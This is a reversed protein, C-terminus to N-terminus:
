RRSQGVLRLYGAFDRFARARHSVAAKEASSMQAMTCGFPPYLFIPDYGFGNDGAPATAILGEVHAETEFPVDRGVAFALATVFRATRPAAPDLALRRYIEEFRQPYTASPSVFRASLVGPAGGLADIELGSDEAVTALGSAAAYALVKQRANEWFTGGTEAPEAIPAVDALTLWEISGIDAVLSRVEVLKNPNTTAVLLRM